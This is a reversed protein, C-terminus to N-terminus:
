NSYLKLLDCLVIMRWSKKFSNFHISLCSFEGYIARSDMKKNNLAIAKRREAKNPLEVYAEMAGNKIINIGKEGNLIKIGGFFAIVDNKSVKWQFGRALVIYPSLKVIIKQSGSRCCFLHLLTVNIFFIRRINQVLSIVIFALVLARVNKPRNLMTRTPCHPYHFHQAQKTVVTSRTTRSRQAVMWGFIWTIRLVASYKWM